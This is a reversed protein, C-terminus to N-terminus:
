KEIPLKVIFKTGNGVKSDVTVRGKHYDVFEKVIALGLGTGQEGKTGKKSKHTIDFIAEVKEPRMGQGQDIFELVYLNDESYSKIHVTSNEPSYKIANTILNNIISSLMVKDTFIMSNTLEFNLDINKTQAQNRIPEIENEIYNSFDVLEPKFELQNLNARAWDLLNLIM